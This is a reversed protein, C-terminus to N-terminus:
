CTRNGLLDSCVLRVRAETVRVPDLTTTTTIEGDIPTWISTGVLQFSGHWTTTLTVTVEDRYWDGEDDRHTGADQDPHGLATYRHAVWSADPQPDGDVWRHGPHATVLTGGEASYPDDFDWAFQVPDARIVVPVGLLSVEQTLATASSHAPYYHNVLLTDGGQVDAEPAPVHMAAFARQAEAGVDAPTICERGSVYEPDGYSGDDRVREVWLAPLEVAGDDCPAPTIDLALVEDPCGGIATYWVPEDFQNSEDDEICTTSDARFYRDQSGGGDNAPRSADGVASTVVNDSENDMGAEIPPPPQADGFSATALLTALVIGRM